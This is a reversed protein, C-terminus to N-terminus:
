DIKWSERVAVHYKAGPDFDDPQSPTMRKLGQFKEVLRIWESQYESPSISGNFVKWRWLDVLYAWPLVPIKSLAVSMQSNIM